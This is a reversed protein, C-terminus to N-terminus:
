PSKIMFIALNGKPGIKSNMNSLRLSRLYNSCRAVQYRLTESRELFLVQKSFCVGVIKFDLRFDNRPERLRSTSLIILCHDSCTFSGNLEFADPYISAWDKRVISRDLREYVLHTHIRKKWTFLRGNVHISEAEITLFFSNLRNYKNYLFVQGEKKENPAGLENFDGIL